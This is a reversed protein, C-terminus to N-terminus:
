LLEASKLLQVLRGIESPALTTSTRRQIDNFMEELTLIRIPNGGLAQRLDRHQEWGHRDGRLRTVATVYTFESTAALTRVTNLFAESWKPSVLERFFRWSERGSFIKDTAVDRAWKTADFGTQWSKCSVVWVRDPGTRNPNIGIVDIDSDNSDTKADFDPHDARPTFKVNHCTFYGQLKLYDDVLQELVDEKM